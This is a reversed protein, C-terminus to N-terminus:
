MGSLMLINPLPQQITVNAASTLRGQQDVTVVPIRETGGYTGINVSTNQLEAPTVARTQISNSTIKSLAM